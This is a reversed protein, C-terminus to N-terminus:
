PVRANVPTLGTLETNVKVVFHRNFLYSNLIHYYNLPLSRRLKYLLGKHWVKDFAQSIALFTASCYQSNDLTDNLVHIFRHTQEITSHRPRFGIQHNPILNAHEVLPLLLKHLLKEFVKSVIPLLSIPRYSSLQHPPKGPMPILIIQAVKWQTPFYGRLLIANFLQTLYQICLTPLEKLLRDTMLDYGHSKKPPLNKIIAKCRPDHSANFLPNSNSLPKLFHHSPTKPFPTPNLHILNSYLPLTIPSPRRKILM